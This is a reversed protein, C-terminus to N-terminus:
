PISMYMCILFCVWAGTGIKPMSVIRGNEIQLAGNSATSSTVTALDEASVGTGGVLISSTAVVNYLLKFMLRHSALQFFLHVM